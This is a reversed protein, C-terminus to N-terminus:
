FTIRSKAYKQGPYDSSSSWTRDLLFFDRVKLYSFSATRARRPRSSFCSSTATTTRPSSFNLVARSIGKGRTDGRGSVEGRRPGTCQQGSRQALLLCLERDSITIYTEKCLFHYYETWELSGSGTIPLTKMKYEVTGNDECGDEGSM